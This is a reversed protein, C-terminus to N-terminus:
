ENRFARFSSGWGMLLGLFGDSRFGAPGRSRRPAPGRRTTRPKAGACQRRSWGPGPNLSVPPAGVTTPKPLQGRGAQPAGPGSARPPLYTNPPAAPGPTPAHPPPGSDPDPGRSEEGGARSTPPAGPCVRRSTAAGRSGVSTARPEGAGLIPPGGPHPGSAKLHRAAAQHPAPARSPPIHKLLWVTEGRPRTEQPGPM